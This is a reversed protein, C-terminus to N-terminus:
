MNESRAESKAAFASSAPRDRTSAPTCYGLSMLAPRSSPRRTAARTISRPLASPESALHVPLTGVPGPLHFPVLGIRGCIAVHFVQTSVEGLSNLDEGGIAWSEGSFAASSASSFVKWRVGLVFEAALRQSCAAPPM